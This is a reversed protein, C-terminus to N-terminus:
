VTNVLLRVTIDVSVNCLKFCSSSNSQSVLHIMAQDMDPFSSSDSICHLNCGFGEYNGLSRKQRLSVTYLSLYKLNTRKEMM